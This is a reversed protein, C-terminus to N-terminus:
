ISYPDVGDYRGYGAVVDYCYFFFLLCGGSALRPLSSGYVLDFVMDMWMCLGYRTIRLACCVRSCVLYIYIYIVVWRGVSRGCSM